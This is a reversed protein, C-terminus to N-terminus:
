ACAAETEITHPAPVPAPLFVRFTSGRGPESEVAVSGNHSRVIFQVISLGLGCGSAGISPSHNVQYFRRFIKEQEGPPIGAGHDQVEFLVADDRAQVRLSVQKNEGGYKCANDLLNILATVLSDADGRIRPLDPQVQFDLSCGASTFKEHMANAAAQAVATPDVEKFEFSHKNREMRSFALFNEVLRTLRSNERSILELYERTIRPDPDSRYLLTDVLLRISALPTKLEHTVNAVLDNKLRAVRMQRTLLRASIVTIIGVATLVLVATWLYSTVQENTLAQLTEPNKVLLAFKWGPLEVGAPATAIAEAPPEEGPKTLTFQLDGPLRPQLESIIRERLTEARFLLFLEQLRFAATDSAPPLPEGARYADLFSASFEEAPLRPFSLGPQLRQLESILFRRQSSSLSPEEYSNLRSGLAAATENFGPTAPATLELLALQANPAILRGHPDVCDKFQPDTLRRLIEVAAQIQGAQQLCRAQALLAPARDDPKLHLEALQGYAEAAASSNAREELGAADRWAQTKAVPPLKPIPSNPYIVKRDASLVLAGDALGAGQVRDFLASPHAAELGVARNSLNLWFHGLEQQLFPVQARYGELLRQTMALRENAIAKGMFWLLAASPLLLGLAFCTLVPWSSLGPGTRSFKGIRLM